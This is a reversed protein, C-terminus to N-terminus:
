PDKEKVTDPTDVRSSIDWVSRGHAKGAAVDGIIRTTSTVTTPASLQGTKADLYRGLGTAVSTANVDLPAVEVRPVAYVRLLPAATLLFAGLGLLVFPALRRM